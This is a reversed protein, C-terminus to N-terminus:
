KVFYYLNVCCFFVSFVLALVSIGVSLISGSLENEVCTPFAQLVAVSGVLGLATDWSWLYMRMLAWMWRGWDRLAKM